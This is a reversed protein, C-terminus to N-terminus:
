GRESVVYDIHWGIIDWNIGVTADYESEMLSLVESVEEDSLVIDMNKAQYEVDEATWTISISNKMKNEKGINIKQNLM